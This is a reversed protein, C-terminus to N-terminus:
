DDSRNYARLVLVPGFGDIEEQRAMMVFDFRNAEMASEIDGKQIGPRGEEIRGSILKGTKSVPVRAVFPAADATPDDVLAAIYEACAQDEDAAGGEGTIVFYTEDAGSRRIAEATARANPFSACFLSQVGARYAAVAGVTGHTTRQIITLGRLDHSRLEVPSNSLEFGPMPRADKMALSGPLLGKLKLAEDLDDTLILRQAGLQFAWAATTYARLVDLVVATGRGRAAGEINVYHARFAM